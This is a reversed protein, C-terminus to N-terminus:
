ICKPLSHDSNIILGFNSIPYLNDLFLRTAFINQGLGLLTSM